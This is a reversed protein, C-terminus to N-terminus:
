TMAPDLTWGIAYISFIVDIDCLTIAQEMPAEILYVRGAEIHAHNQERALAMQTTSLDLGYVRQAGREVVHSISDGSGCGVELVTLGRLDGLLDLSRGEGFPGWDPLACHGAFQPAVQDWARKNTALDNELNPVSKASGYALPSPPKPMPPVWDVGDSPAMIEM